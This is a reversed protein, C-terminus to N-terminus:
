EYLISRHHHPSPTWRARVKVTEGRTFPRSPLFSSGPESTYSRLRGRHKGSLSGVVSVSHLTGAPAGLFSIQTQPLAAPTGRLPSIAVTAGARASEGGARPAGLGRRRA